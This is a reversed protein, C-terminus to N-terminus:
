VQNNNNEDEELEDEEIILRKEIEPIYDGDDEDEIDYMESNSVPELTFEIAQDITFLKKQQAM